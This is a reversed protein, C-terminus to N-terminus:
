KCWGRGSAHKGSHYQQNGYWGVDNEGLYQLCKISLESVLLYAQKRAEQTLPSYISPSAVNQSPNDLLGGCDSSM